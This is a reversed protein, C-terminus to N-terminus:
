IQIWCIDQKTYCKNNGWALWNPVLCIFSSPSSSRMRVSGAFTAFFAAGGVLFAAGLFVAFCFDGVGNPTESGKVGLDCGAGLLGTVVGVWLWTLVGTAMVVGLPLWTVVGTGVGVTPLSLTYAHSYVVIPYCSLFLFPLALLSVYLGYKCSSECIRSNWMDPWPRTGNYSSLRPDILSPVSHHKGGKTIVLSSHM